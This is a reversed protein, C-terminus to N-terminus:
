QASPEYNQYKIAETKLTVINISNPIRYLPNMEYLGEYCIDSRNKVIVSM